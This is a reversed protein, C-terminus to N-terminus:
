AAAEVAKVQPFMIERRTIHGIQKSLDTDCWIEFGCEGQRSASIQTKASTDMPSSVTKRIM